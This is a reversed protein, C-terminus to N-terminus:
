QETRQMWRPDVMLTIRKVPIRKGKIQIRYNKRNPKQIEVIEFFHKFVKGKANLYKQTVLADLKGYRKKNTRYSEQAIYIELGRREAADKLRTGWRNGLYEEAERAVGTGPFRKILNSIVVLGGLDGNRIMKRADRYVRSEPSLRLEKGTAFAGLSVLLFFFVFTIRVSM